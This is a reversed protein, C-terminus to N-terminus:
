KPCSTQNEPDIKELNPLQQMEVVTVTLKEPPTKPPTLVVDYLRLKEKLKLFFNGMDGTNWCM